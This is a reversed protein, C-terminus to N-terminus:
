AVDRVPALDEMLGSVLMAVRRGVFDRTKTDKRYKLGLVKKVAEHGDDVEYELEKWSFLRTIILGWLEIDPLEEQTVGRPMGCGTVLEHHRKLFSLSSPYFFLHAFERQALEYDKQAHNEFDRGEEKTLTLRSKKFKESSIHESDLLEFLKPTLTKQYSYDVLFVVNYLDQLYHRHNYSLFIAGLVNLSGILANRKHVDPKAMLFDEDQKVWTNFHSDFVLVLDLLTSEELSDWYYTKILGLLQCRFKLRDEEFEASVFRGLAVELQIRHERHGVPRYLLNYDKEFFKQLKVPSFFEGARHLMILKGNSKKWYIDGPALNLQALDKPRLEELLSVDMSQIDATDNKEM